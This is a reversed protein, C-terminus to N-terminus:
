WLPRLGKCCHPQLSRKHVGLLDQLISVLLLSSPPNLLRVFYNRAFRAIMIGPSTQPLQNCLRCIRRPHRPCHLSRSYLTHLVNSYQPPLFSLPPRSLFAAFPPPLPALFFSQNKRFLCLSLVVYCRGLEADSPACHTDM